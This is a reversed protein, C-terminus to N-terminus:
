TGGGLIDDESYDRAGWGAGSMASPADSNFVLPAPTQIRGMVQITKVFEQYAELFSTAQDTLYQMMQGKNISLGAASYSIGQTMLRGKLANLVRYACLNLAAENYDGLDADVPTGLVRIAERVAGGLVSMFQTQPMTLGYITYTGGTLSAGLRVTLNGESVSISTM